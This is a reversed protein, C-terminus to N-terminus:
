LKIGRIRAAKADEIRKAALREEEARAVAQERLKKESLLKQQQSLESIRSQEREAILQIRAAPADAEAAVILNEGLHEMWPGPYIFDITYVYGIAKAPQGQLVIDESERLRIFFQDENRICEIKETILKGTSPGSPYLADGIIGQWGSSYFRKEKSSITCRPPQHCWDKDDRKRQISSEIKLTKRWNILDDCAQIFKAAMDGRGFQPFTEVGEQSLAEKLGKSDSTLTYGIRQIINM